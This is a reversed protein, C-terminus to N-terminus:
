LLRYLSKGLNLNDNSRITLIVDTFQVPITSSSINEKVELRNHFVAIFNRTQSTSCNKSINVIDFLVPVQVQSRLSDHAHHNKRM